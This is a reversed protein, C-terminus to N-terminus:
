YKKGDALARDEPKHDARTTNFLLKETLAGGIDLDFGGAIDFIRLLTDALEVEFMKRHPLKDDMQDKRIGELAESLESHCLALLELPNRGEDAVEDLLDLMENSYECAKNPDNRLADAKAAAGKRDWWGGEKAVGHAIKVMENINHAIQNQVVPNSVAEVNTMEKLQETM